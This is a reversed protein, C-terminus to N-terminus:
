FEVKCAPFTEGQMSVSSTSGLVIIGLSQQLGHTEEYWARVTTSEFTPILTVQMEQPWNSKGALLSDLIKRTFKEKVPDEGSIVYYSSRLLKFFEQDVTQAAPGGPLYALDVYLPLAPPSPSISQSTKSSVASTIRNGASTSRITNGISYRAVSQKAEVGTRTRESMDARVVSAKSNKEGVGRVKGSPGAIKSTNNRLTSPSSHSQSKKDAVDTPLAEPDVMCTGPQPPTPPPDKLPPPFPDLLRPTNDGESDSAGDIAISSGEEPGSDSITPLSESVSTPPTEPGNPFKKGPSCQPKPLEQSPDSDSDRPSAIADSKHHEFECPSVLCLDVDHPSASRESQGEHENSHSPRVPLSLGVRSAAHIDPSVDRPSESVPPLTQEFSSISLSEDVETSHPSGVEAPLSPTTITPSVDPLDERFPSLSLCSTQKGQSSNSNEQSSKPPAKFSNLNKGDGSSLVQESSHQAVAPSHHESSVPSTMELTKEESSGCPDDLWDQGHHSCKNKEQIELNTPTLDFNVSIESRPTKALPSISTLCKLPSTEMYRFGNPSEPEVASPGNETSKGLGNEPHANSDSVACPPENVKSTNQSRIVECSVPTSSMAAVDKEAPQTKTEKVQEKKLTKGKVVNKGGAVMDKKIAGLDKKLSGVKSVPRRSDAPTVLAKKVDKVAMRSIKGEEVKSEKLERRPTDIKGDNLHRLDKKSEPKAVEKKKDAQIEDKKLSKKEDKTQEKKLLAKEKVTKLRSDLKTKETTTETKGKGEKQKEGETGCEKSTEVLNKSRDKVDPRLDKKQVKFPKEKGSGFKPEVSLRGSGSGLSEKSETRSPKAGIRDLNSSRMLDLDKRTIVPDKLFDLHKLKELGEFIKNQPTCGPFLVRVIRESPASPHWVLLVCASTLSTIPLDSTNHEKDGLWKKFAEADKSGKVPNLIYMELKGVGMKQFLIVPNVAKESRHLPEPHISLKQLCQMTLLAEERVRVLSPNEEAILKEATNMFVVGLEPSLLNKLWENNPQPVQSIDEETEAIKRQLLSNIGPLNDLGMHTLLISDVRDLHRILKWFPSRVDSGGNVLMNFGNIAFFASDGRGGPFVYCCPKSLKLFGVTTPSELLEFPSPPELSESLYEELELLGETEPFIQDKNFQLGIFDQLSCKDIQSLDWNDPCSVTLCVRATPDSSGLTEGIEKDTFIHIFDDISFGGGGQLVMEGTHELFPGTFILLKHQSPHCILKRIEDCVSIKSPNILVLTELTDGAHHLSRQGKVEPSFTASHRSVFLKLQEDLNCISPDIAWSCFGRKLESVALKVLSPGRCMEGCLVLCSCCPHGPGARPAAM